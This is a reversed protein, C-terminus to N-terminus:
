VLHELMKDIYTKIWEHKQNTLIFVDKKSKIKNYTAFQTSPPCTEDMLGMGMHVDATIREALHQIDIYGMRTWFDEQMELTFACAKIYREIGEYAGKALDMQWVRKYDSLFPYLAFCKKIDKSNLAACAISLAGGQSGGYTYIKDIDVNPLSKAVNVLQVTDLFVNRYYLNTADKDAAGKIVHGWITPGQATGCDESKGAQGRCDLALVIYGLSAFSLKDFFDGSDGNYGHFCLIVPLKGNVNTPRIYKAHIRSNKTGNFYLHNLEYNKPNKYESPIIEVKADIENIESIGDKWFKDFDAPKPNLGKYQKLEELPMDVKPM